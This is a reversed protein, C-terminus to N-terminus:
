DQRLHEQRRQNAAYQLRYAAYYKNVNAVYDVTERGVKEAAIKEVHFFWRNPDFGREEAQERLQRIRGPGANYAAWAFDVRIAPEIAPDDFYHDRLFALYKAGAHINNELLHIDGIGVNPDAATSPKLQMIGIAGARSKRGQDLGSEQYAQAALALWDFDYKEGYKQFLAVLEELKAREAGTLPNAIWTSGQHYRNFLVNGLLSGKRNKRLFGSLSAELEPNGPRVAWAIRGDEHVALQEHVVLDPLVESWAEAVHRDAVTLEVVGAHVMELIDETALDRDALVVEIPERGEAELRESLEELHGAYSSAPRVYVRRGALDDLSGVPAAGRHAVVVEDVDPLYPETFAVREAREPTVTLGAAVVDGRGAILDDLLREFPTPIFFLQVREITGASANLTKAVYQTMLEHEFGQPRGQDFFFGTKSYSVLVRLHRRKKIEPLDGTFPRRLREIEAPDPAEVSATESSTAGSGAQGASRASDGGCALVAPLTLILILHRTRM